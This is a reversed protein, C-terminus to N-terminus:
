SRVASGTTSSSLLSIPMAQRDIIHQVDGFLFGSLVSLLKTTQFRSWRVTHSLAKASSPECVLLRTPSETKEALQQSCGRHSEEFMFDVFGNDQSQKDRQNNGLPPLEPTVLRWM